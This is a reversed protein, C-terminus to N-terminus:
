SGVPEDRPNKTVLPLPCIPSPFADSKGPPLRYGPPDRPPTLFGRFPDGPAPAPGSQLPLFPPLPPCSSSSFSSPADEGGPRGAGARPAPLPPLSEEDTALPRYAAFPKEKGLIIELQGWVNKRKRKIGKKVPVPGPNAAPVPGTGSGVRPPVPPGKREADPNDFIM